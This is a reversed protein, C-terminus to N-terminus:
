VRLAKLEGSCHSCKVTDRFEPVVFGCAFCRLNASPSQKVPEKGRPLLERRPRAM